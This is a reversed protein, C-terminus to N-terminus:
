VGVLDLSTLLFEEGGVIEVDAAGCHACVVILEEAVPLRYGCRRCAVVAPMSEVELVSGEFPTSEVVLDWCYRLTDPVVQRLRGVQLHIVDVQRGAAAREVIGYISRCLSLEHM